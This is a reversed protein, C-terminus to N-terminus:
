SGALTMGEVRLSPVVRSLHLRADNAPTVSKLMDRLNGAITFESVPYALAGGEIWQGSAGASYDGTTPNVNPSFLDTVLIGTGMERMLDVPSADGQSLQISYNGPQPPASPGRVANGTSRLGLKRANALDLTWDVLVGDEVIARRLAPLGEVDFARAGGRRPATPDEILSMGRPLVQEGKADLLWSAGRAISAGNVARLLQGILSGAIREDYLVPVHGTEPRRPNARALTREAAIRGVTDPSDVDQRWIRSDGYYSREMDTGQGTIAVCSLGHGTRVFGGSFGNTAALHFSQNSYGASAEEVQSIGTFALAASEAALAADQLAQPEPEPGNDVLDLAAIDWDTALDGPEALGIAPDEPAERAMAVAREAMEAMAAPSPDSAAVCAQRQGILVRLGLDLGESREAQELAGQRVSISLSQGEFVLADAAEAGAKQAASVLAHSLDALNRTM